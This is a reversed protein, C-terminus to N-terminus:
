KKPSKKKKGGFIKDLLRAFFGKKKEPEVIEEEIQTQAQAMAEASTINELKSGYIQYVRSDKPPAITIHERDRNLITEVPKTADANTTNKEPNDIELDQGGNFEKFLRDFEEDQTEERVPAAVVPKEEEVKQTQIKLNSAANQVSYLLGGLYDYYNFTVLAMLEECKQNKVSQVPKAYKDEPSEDDEILFVDEEEDDLDIEDDKDFDLLLTEKKVVPEPKSAEVEDEDEIFLFEEDELEQIGTKGYESERQNEIAELDIIYDDEDALDVDDDVISFPIEPEVPKPPEPKPGEEMAAASMRRKETKIEFTSSSYDFGVNKAKGPQINKKELEQASIDKRADKLPVIEGKFEQELEALVKKADENKPKPAAQKPNLIEEVAEDLVKWLYAEQFPKTLLKCNSAAVKAAFDPDLNSSIMIIPIEPHLEKLYKAFDLGNITPINFDVTIIDPKLAECMDIGARGDQAEGAVEFTNKTAPKKAIAKKILNRIFFADDIILVKYNAM